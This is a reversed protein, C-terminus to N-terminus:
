PGTQFDWIIQGYGSPGFATGCQVVAVWGEIVQSPPLMTISVDIFETPPLMAEQYDKRADGRRSMKRSVFYLECNGALSVNSHHDESM